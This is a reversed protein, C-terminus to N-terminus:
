YSIKYTWHYLKNDFFVIGVSFMDLKATAGEIKSILDWIKKTKRSSRINNVVILSKDHLINTLNLINEANIEKIRKLDIFVSDIKNEAFQSIIQNLDSLSDSHINRAWGDYLKLATNRKSPDAEISHCVASSFPSTLYLTNLGRGAGIELVRKSGFYNIIRFSFRNFKNPRVNIEPFNQLYEKIDNYAYYPRREEVVHNVFDFVFPSHIGHGRHHRIKYILNLGTRSIKYIRPM